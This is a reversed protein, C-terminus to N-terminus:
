GSAQMLGLKLMLIDDERAGSHLSTFSHTTWSLDSQYDQSKRWVSRNKSRSTTCRFDTTQREFVIVLSVLKQLFIQPSLAGSIFTRSKELIVLMAQRNTELFCSKPWIENEISHAWPVHCQCSAPPLELPDCPSHRQWCAGSNYASSHFSVPSFWLQHMWQPVWFPRKFAVSM